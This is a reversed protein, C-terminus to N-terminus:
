EISLLDKLLITIAEMDEGSSRGIKERFRDGSLSVIQFVLAASDASLGNERNCCIAHTHPFRFANITTTLPVAITMGGYSVALVIAPRRGGQEHGRTDTLDVWFIDGRTRQTSRGGM